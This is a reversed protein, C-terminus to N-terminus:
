RRAGAGRPAEAHKMYRPADAGANFLLDVISVAPDFPPHVQPYEPYGEYDMWRVAIGRSAFEGEDLYDRASPGSVYEDAGAQECLTALRLSKDGESAYDTSWSIRTDIGLLPCLRQLFLRNVDSLRELEAAKEYLVAIQEAMADFCEAQAYSQRLTQWHREAWGQEAIRVEDIRQEYRGKVQVPITLWLPGQATKVRNRNRWDRKTYQVEDLLIFEDVLGIVDFYGRWPIYSSQIAAVRKM